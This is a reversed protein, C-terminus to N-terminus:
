FSELTQICFQLYLFDGMSRLQSSPEIGIYAAKSVHSSCYLL